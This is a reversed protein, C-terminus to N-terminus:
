AYQVPRPPVDALLLTAALAATTKETEAAANFTGQRALNGVKAFLLPNRGAVVEPTSQEDDEYEASELAPSQLEAQSVSTLNTMWEARQLPTMNRFALPVDFRPADPALFYAEQSLHIQPSNERSM